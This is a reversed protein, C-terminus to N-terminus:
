MKYKDLEPKNESTLTFTEKNVSALKQLVGEIDVQYNDVNKYKYSYSNAGQRVATTCAKSNDFINLKNKYYNIIKQDYKWIELNRKEEKEIESALKAFWSNKIKYIFLSRLALDRYNKHISKLLLKEKNKEKKYHEYKKVINLNMKRKKRSNIANASLVDNLLMSTENKLTHKFKFFFKKKLIKKNNFKKLNKIKLGERKELIDKKVVPHMIQDMDQFLLRFGGLEGVRKEMLIRKQLANFNYKINSLSGNNVEDKLLHDNVGRESGSLVRERGYLLPAPLHQRKHSFSTLSLEPRTLYTNDNFKKINSIAYDLFSNLYIVPPTTDKPNKYKYIANEFIFKNKDTYYKM